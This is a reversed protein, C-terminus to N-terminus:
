KVPQYAFKKRQPIVMKQPRDRRGREAYRPVTPLPNDRNGAYKRKEPGITAPIGQSFASQL